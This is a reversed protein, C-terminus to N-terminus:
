TMLEPEPILRTLVDPVRDAPVPRSFLYGQGHSSGLEFLLSAEAEREIGETVVRLDLHRGIDIIGAVLSTRDPDTDIGSVFSRDIKLVDIPFNRLYSLASYGTGFDDIALRAGLARLEALRARMAEDDDLLASETIELTLRRGDLGSAALAERVVSTFDPDRLQVTSVNVNIGIDPAAWSALQVCATHLVWAGIEIIQGTEEAVTIFRDPGVRGIGPREWRVLAELGTVRRTALAVVPQFELLMEGRGVAGDLAAVLDLREALRERMAPEYGVVQGPCQRKAEYLAVDANGLAIEPSDSPEVMAVGFSASPTVRRGAVDIPERLAAQLRAALAHAQQPDDLEETLVAFEDGGLRAATDVARLEALLRRATARLLEDGGSHGHLDNVSKFDDLDVFIVAARRGTRSARAHAVRLRDDFLARNALGTLDDHLAQHELQDQLALRETVDRLNLLAGAVDPDDPRWDAVVEMRRYGGDAHRIRLVAAGARKGRQTVDEALAAALAVDDPHLLDAVTAGVLAPADRGLLSSSSESVWRIAGDADLVAIVDSSHRVLTRLRQEARREAERARGAVARRRSIVHLRLGLLTLLVLGVLMSTLWRQSADRRARQVAERQEATAKRILETFRDIAPSFADNTLAMAAPPDNFGLTSAQVGYTSVVGLQEEIPGLQARPMGLQRLRRVDAVMLRYAEIGVKASSESRTPKKNAIDRWTVSDLRSAEGRLHQMVVQGELARDADERSHEGLVIMVVVVALAATALLAVPVIRRGAAVDAVPHGADITTRRLLGM